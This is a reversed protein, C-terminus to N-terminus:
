LVNVTVSDASCERGDNASFELKYEGPKSFSARTFDGDEPDFTVEGQGEVKRWRLVLRGPNLPLGDDYVTAQLTATEGRQITLDPGADVVPARNVTIAVSDEHALTSNDGRLTLTYVGSRAPLQVRTTLGDAPEFRVGDPGRWSLSLAENPDALGNDVKKGAIDVSVCAAAPGESLLVVQDDGACVQPRENVTVQVEEHTALSGSAVTVTAAVEFSYIGRESFTVETCAESPRIIQASAPGATQRWVVSLAGEPFSLGRPTVSASLTASVRQGTLALPALDAIEVLPPQSVVVTVDDSAARAGDKATLRLVYRGAQAFSASTTPQDPREFCVADPTGPGGVQEWLVLGGKAPAQNYVVHGALLTTLPGQEKCDVVLDPGASVVPPLDSDHGCGFNRQVEEASLARSYVAVLHLVGAWTYGPSGSGPDGGVALTFAPDWGAIQGDDHRTAVERGNLYLRTTGDAGRTCVLHAPLGPQAAGGALARDSGTTNSASTRVAAYFSDRAYGLLFGRAAPGAGLTVIRAPGTQLADGQSVWTEMTLESSRIVAQTLREAAGSEWVAAGALAPQLDLPPAAGSLDVVMSGAGQRFTYLAELDRTVRTGATVQVVDRAEFSGNSVTLELLYTDREKFDVWTALSKPSTFTVTGLNGIKRWAFTVGGGEPYGLGDDLLEGALQGSTGALDLNPGASIRPRENVIIVVTDSAGKPEGDKQEDSAREDATLQLVYRGRRTFTATTAPDHPDIFTVGAPGELQKWTFFLAKSELRDDIATGALEATAPAGNLGIVQNLGANVVPLQDDLRAATAEEGLNDDSAAGEQGQIVGYYAAMFPIIQDAYNKLEPLREEIKARVENAFVTYSDLKDGVFPDLQMILEYNSEIDLTQLTTELSPLAKPELPPLVRSVFTVRHMVRWAAPASGKNTSYTERLAAANPDDSQLWIPDVVRNFFLDFHESRPELFFSFFRYLDVKGPVRLPRPRLRDTRDVVVEGQADRQYIDREVRDLSINLGFSRSSEATKTATINLHGGFLASLSLQTKFKWLLSATDLTVGGLGKFAYSGGATESFSDMTEQSEVFLGGDASWVYTNVLNRRALRPLQDRIRVDDHLGQGSDHENGLEEANFAAFRMRLEQEERTIRNKLAYAEIPKFYSSDPSYSLADPYDVDPRLSIKGDLTGQKTYRPNIPFSILNFDEPIDPNPRTQYAILAGNRTLRLAFVDATRSRVLALGVNDPIFRRVQTGAMEELTSYRGRLEQSTSRGTTTAASTGGGTLHSASYELKLKSGILFQTEEVKSITPTFELDIDTESMYGGRVGLEWEMDFGSDRSAAFSYTASEAQILEVKSAENYDDIDGIMEDGRQTLNESPVPPAGEIYGVLTPEFQVQGVWETSMDGVKYGTVLTLKGDQIMGLCRKLVGSLMGSADSQLDAYEQVAPTGQVLANYATRVGALASRVQPLDDGVPATSLNYDAPGYVALHCARGSKDSLLGGQEADFTYTALLDEGAGVICQFLTDQIQELTRCMKWIRVEELEGQFLQSPRVGGLAGLTFQDSLRTPRAPRTAVLNDGSVYLARTTVKDGNVYLTLTSDAPNPEWTASGRLSAHNRSKADEVVRGSGEEFRWWSVLGEEAGRLAASLKDQTLATNWIRIESIAVQLMTSSAATAGMPKGVLASQSSSSIEKLRDPKEKFETSGRTVSGRVQGDIYFTIQEYVKSKIPYDNSNESVRKRTVAVSHFVGTTLVASSYYCHQKSEDEDEGKDYYESNGGVRDDVSHFLLGLSGVSTVFLTYPREGTDGRSLIIRDNGLEDIRIVAEITLDGNINLTEDNGCDLYGDGDFKMAYSQEYTAALHTWSGIPYLGSTQIAKQGVAFFPTYSQLPGDIMTPKGVIEGYLGHRAADKMKGDQYFWYAVLDTEEGSLRRAMDVQIEDQSRARKWIRVEDLGGKFRRPQPNADGARVISGGLGWESDPNIAPLTINTTRAIEVGNRYLILVKTTVDYVGALHIWTTGSCDGETINTVVMYRTNSSKTYAGFYYQPYERGATAEKAISLFIEDTYGPRGWTVINRFSDDAEPRVWAEITLSGALHLQTANPIKVVNDVGDFRLANSNRLGLSYSSGATSNQQTIVRAIGNVRGPSVWAELTLDGTADLPAFTTQKKPTLGGTADPREISTPEKAPTQIPGKILKPAGIIQGDIGHNTADKMMGNDCYWYGVLDTEDGSLRRAMNTQIEPQSRARKWIRVEDLGGKFLRRNSPREVPASTSGIGWGTDLQPVNAGTRGGTRNVEVGNRYIIWAKAASDYVGALHIWDTGQKDSSPITYQAIAGITSGFQYQDGGMRLFLEHTMNPEGHVVISANFSEPRIWAEITLSNSLQLQTANPILVADNQGDFWFASAPSEKAAAYTQKGDFALATGPANAIWKSSLTSGGAHEQNDVLAQKDGAAGVLLSGSYLDAAVCTSEALRDYDYELLFVPLEGSPLTALPEIAVNVPANGAAVKETVRTRTNGIVLTAGEELAPRTGRGLQLLPTAGGTATGRGLPIRTAKGNLVRAMQQADRPLERWTEQMGPGDLTLTCTETRSGNKVVIKLQDLEAEAGRAALVLAPKDADAPKAGESGTTEDATTKVAPARRLNYRAHQTTTTYYTAFLQDDSGRFYLGLSGTASDFLLPANNSWAFGLLGGALTQGQADIHVLPVGVEAGKRLTSWADKLEKQAEELAATALQLKTVAAKRREIFSMSKTINLTLSYGADAELTHTNAIVLHKIDPNPFHRRLWGSTDIVEAQLDQDAPIRVEVPASLTIPHTDDLKRTTTTNGQVIQVTHDKLGQDLKDLEDQAQQQADATARVRQELTAMKDLQDRLKGVDTTVDGKLQLKIVDPAMALRGSASVGFDLTAIYPQNRGTTAVALMVRASDKLPKKQGAYGSPMDSIQQFYLLASMGGGVDLSVPLSQPSESAQVLRFSDRAIGSHEGIEAQSPVWTAGGSITGTGGSVQDYITTGADEDLSWYAALGPELGTLRQGLQARLERESRRRNWVRIEDLTVGFSRGPAGFAALSGKAASPRAPLDRKERQCGGTFFRLAKGDCSIALHQWTDAKLIPRTPGIEWRADGSGYSVGLRLYPDVTVTLGGAGGDFLVRSESDTRQPRLWAELTWEAGLDVPKDFRVCADPSRLDLAAGSCSGVVVQPILEKDCRTSQDSLAPEACRGASVTFVEPHDECTYRQSGRTNFLGDTSREVNISDIRGASEDAGKTYVFFQWRRLEAVQTPLLLAAFRGESLGGMFRLEQTPEYFYNGDLDKAGLGDKRSAPRSRSRSRQYRVELKPQLTAGVLVFRDVLLTANVLPTLQNVDADALKIVQGKEDIYQMAARSGDPSTIMRGQADVYVMKKRLDCPKTPIDDWAPVAVAQRLVYVFGGDSIVQFPVDATFRATTSLFYDYGKADTAALAPLATGPKEASSADKKFVPLRRQDAVGFGVEAIESPFILESPQLPWADKDLPTAGKRELDLVAYVIRQKDNLAFAILTGNHRVMTISRYRDDEYPKTFQDFM